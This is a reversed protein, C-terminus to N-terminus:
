KYEYLIHHKGTRGVEAWKNSQLAYIFIMPDSKSLVDKNILNRFLYYINYLLISMLCSLYSFLYTCSFRLEIRSQPRSMKKKCLTVCTLHVQNVIKKIKIYRIHIIHLSCLISEVKGSNRYSRTLSVM